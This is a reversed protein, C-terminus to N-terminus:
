RFFATKYVELTQHITGCPIFASFIVTLKKTDMSVVCPVVIRTNIARANYHKNRQM